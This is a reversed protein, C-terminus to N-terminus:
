LKKMLVLAGVAVAALTIGSMGGLTFNGWDFAAAPPAPPVIPNGNRDYPIGDIMVVGNDMQVVSGDASTATVGAIQDASVFVFRAYGIVNSQIVQAMENAANIVISGQGTYTFSVMVGGTGEFSAQANSFNSDTAIAKSISLLSPCGVTGVLGCTFHFVYNTGKVMPTGPDLYGLGSLGRFRPLQAGRAHADIMAAHAMTLRHHHAVLQANRQAIADRQAAVAKWNPMRNALMYAAGLRQYQPRWGTPNDTSARVYGSLRRSLSGRQRTYIM